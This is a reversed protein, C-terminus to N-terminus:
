AIYTILCQSFPRTAHRGVKPWLYRSMEKMIAWDARRQEKDSANQEALLSYIKQGENFRGTDIKQLTEPNIRELPEPKQLSQAPANPDAQPHKQQSSSLFSLCRNPQHGSRIQRILNPAYPVLALAQGQFRHVRPMLMFLVM